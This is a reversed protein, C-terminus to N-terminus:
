IEKMTARAVNTLHEDYKQMMTKCPEGAIKRAACDDCIHHNCGQCKYRERTRQPNM